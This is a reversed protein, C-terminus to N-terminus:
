CPVEEPESKGKLHDVKKGKEKREGLLIGGKRRM